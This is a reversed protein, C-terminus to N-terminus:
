RQLWEPACAGLPLLPYQYHGPTRSMYVQEAVGKYFGMPTEALLPDPDVYAHEDNSGAMTRAYKQDFIGMSMLWAVARSLSVSVTYSGGETARRKLAQLVGATGLWAVVYDSIISIQPTTHPTLTPTDTGGLSELWYPGAYAGTSVDFGTRESWAGERGAFYVTASILGPHKRCLEDPALGYRDLFGSRRNSFFIDAGELLQDFRGRAMAEDLDLRSSRLGVNSTYHFLSHEYDSKRWINLVDAGHLALARGLGAGAIVHGLGLARIGGLVDGGQQFPIPDSDAVKEISILPQNKLVNQFVDLELFEQPSRVMYLPIGAKGGAEELEAANWQAVAKAVSEHGPPCQLLQLATNRMKPYNCIFFVWRGDKCQHFNATVGTNEDSGMNGPLGNVLELTGEHFTAFRRLAKRVDVHINQSQGTKMRWISAIQAAKVALGIASFTGFRLVSPVIPDKGYFSLEGGFESLSAGISNLVTETEGHIDFGDSVTRSALHQRIKAELQYQDVQM